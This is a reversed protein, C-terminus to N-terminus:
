TRRMHYHCSSSLKSIQQSFSFSPDFVFGLNHASSCPLNPQAPLLSFSPSHIKSLHQPLGILMFETKSPNLTLLNATMWSSITSVSSQLQNIVFPFDKPVFSTFLQIDDAYLHHSLSTNAILTSLPTIYLNFLIPELVSGQPVGCSITIKSPTAGISVFSSRTSLYSHFSSLSISSIGFCTSMRTLLISRDLTDFAASLDLLCHLTKEFCFSKQM